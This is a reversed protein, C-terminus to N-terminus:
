KRPRQQHNQITEIEERIQRDHKSICLVFMAAGAIALLLVTGIIILVLVLWNM